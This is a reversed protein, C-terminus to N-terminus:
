APGREFAEEADIAAQEKSSADAEAADHKGQVIALRARMAELEQAYRDAAERAKRAERAAADRNRRLRKGEAAREADDTGDAAPPAKSRGGKAGPADAPTPSSLSPVLTLGALDGFGAAGDPPREFTGARLHEGADPDTSATELARRIADLHQPSARGAGELVKRATDTLGTIATRRSASATKLRDAAGKTSSLAARQVARVEAGADLLTAVGDPDRVGLQNLAWTVVTPKRLAKVATADQPRDSERLRRVLEDRATIFTEPEERFLSDAETPLSRPDPM